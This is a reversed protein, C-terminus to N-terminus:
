IPMKDHKSGNCKSCIVRLNSAVTKGGKAIPVIHDVQLGVGDPMYKRCIQCTYNDRQMIKKRLEGTMLKRQQKSHYNRLTCEFGINKLDYYRHQIYEYNYTFSETKVKVRYSSKVYNRQKYRTQLRVFHFMFARNDDLTREYQQKWYKKLLSYEVQQYATQKWQSIKTQHYQISDFGGSILFTDLFDDIKPNRKGSVDSEYIFYPYSFPSKLVIYYLLAIILCILTMVLCAILTEM